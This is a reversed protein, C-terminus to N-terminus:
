TMLKVRKNNRLKMSGDTSGASPPAQEVQLKSATPTMKSLRAKKMNATVKRTGKTTTSTKLRKPPNRPPGADYSEIVKASPIKLVEMNFNIAEQATSLPGYRWPSREIYPLSPPLANVAPNGTGYRQSIQRMMRKSHQPQKSPKPGSATPQQPSGANEKELRGKASTGRVIHKSGKVGRQDEDSSDSDSSSGSSGDPDATEWPLPPGVYDHKGYLSILKVFAKPFIIPLAGFGRRATDIAAMPDGHWSKPQQFYPSPGPRYALDPSQYNYLMVANYLGGHDAASIKNRQHERYAASSPCRRGPLADKPGKGELRRAYDRKEIEIFFELDQPFFVWGPNADNDFAKHCAPCLPM